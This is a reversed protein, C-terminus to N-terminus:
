MLVWLYAQSMLPCASEVTSVGTVTSHLVAVTLITLGVLKLLIAVVKIGERLKDGTGVTLTILVEGAPAPGIM